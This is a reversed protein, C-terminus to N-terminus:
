RVVEPDENPRLSRVRWGGSYSSGKSAPLIVVRAAKVESVEVRLPTSRWPHPKQVASYDPPQESVETEVRVSVRGRQVSLVATDGGILRIGRSTWNTPQPKGGLHAITAAVVHAAEDVKVWCPVLNMLGDNEPRLVTISASAAREFESAGRAGADTALTGVILVIQLHRM